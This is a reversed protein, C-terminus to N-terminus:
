HTSVSVTNSGGNAVYAITQAQTAAGLVISIALALSCLVVARCCVLARFKSPLKM